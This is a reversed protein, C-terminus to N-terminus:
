ASPLDLRPPPPEPRALRSLARRGAPALPATTALPGEPTWAVLPATLATQLLMTARASAPACADALTLARAAARNLALHAPCHCTCAGTAGMGPMASAFAADVPVAGPTALALIALAALAAVARRAAIV